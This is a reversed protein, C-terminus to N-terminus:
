MGEGFKHGVYPVDKPNPYLARLKSVVCDPMIERRYELALEMSGAAQAKKALYRPDNWGGVNSIMKWYKNYLAFRIEINERCPDQGEGLGYFPRMAMCPSMFCQPCDMNGIEQLKPHKPLREGQSEAIRRAKSTSKKGTLKCYVLIVYKGYM